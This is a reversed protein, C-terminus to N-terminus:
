LATSIAAVRQGSAVAERNDGDRQTPPWRTLSSRRFAIANWAAPTAKATPAPKGASDLKLQLRSRKRRALERKIVGSRAAKDFASATARMATRAEDLKGAGVLGLLKRELTETAIQNCPKHAAKRASTRARKAASTTNPM